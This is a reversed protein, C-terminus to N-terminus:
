SLFLNPERSLLNVVNPPTSIYIL